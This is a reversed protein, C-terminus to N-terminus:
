KLASELWFNCSWDHDQMHIMLTTWETLRFIQPAIEYKGNQMNIMSLNTIEIIGHLKSIHSAPCGGDNRTIVYPLYKGLPTVQELVFIGEDLTINNWSWRKAAIEILIAGVGWQRIIQIAGKLARIEFGEVDIKMVSVKEFVFNDM